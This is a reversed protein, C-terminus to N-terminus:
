PEAEGLAVVSSGFWRAGSETLARKVDELSLREDLRRVERCVRDLSAVRLRALVGRVLVAEPSAGGAAPIPAKSSPRPRSSASADDSPRPESEPRAAASADGLLAGALQGRPLSLAALAWARVVPEAVPRGEHDAVDGSRAARLLADLALVRACEDRDLLLWRATPRQLFADRRAITDRWTPSFDSSRERIALVPDVAAITDLRALAAGITKPHVHQVLAVRLKGRATTLTLQAPEGPLTKLVSAGPLFGVLCAVADLLTPLEVPQGREVNRDLLARADELRATWANALAEDRRDADLEPFGLTTHRSAPGPDDIAEGLAPAPAPGAELASLLATMLMRPTMGPARMLEDFGDAGVVDVVRTGPSAVELWRGLLAAREERVPLALALRRMGLRAKHPMGLVPEIARAWESDIAMHVTVVGPVTDVLEMVLNAYALVRDRSDERTALNELQDFVLVLPASVSAVASVTKLAPMVLDEGLSASRGLRALQTADCDDGSLWALMARKDLRSAFAAHLLTRLWGDDIEPHVELAREITAEIHERRDDASLREVDDLAARPFQSAGEGFHAFLSGVLVHLQEVHGTRQALQQVIQRLLSRPTLDSSVYPRLYVFVAKPGLKRRLREFLHTKGAGPPGLVLISRARLREPETAALGLVHRASSEIEDSVAANLSPLDVFDERWASEISHLTM